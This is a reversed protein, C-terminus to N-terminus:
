KSMNGHKGQTGSSIKKQYRYKAAFSRQRYAFRRPSFFLWTIKKRRPAKRRTLAAEGRIISILYFIRQFGPYEMNLKSRFRIPFRDLESLTKHFFVM